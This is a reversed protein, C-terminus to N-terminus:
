FPEILFISAATPIQHAPLPAFQAALANSCSPEGFCSGAILPGTVQKYFESRGALDVEGVGDGIAKTTQQLYYKLRNKWIALTNNISPIADADVLSVPGAIGHIFGQAVGGMGHSGVAIEWREEVDKTETALGELLALAEYPAVNLPDPFMQLLAAAFAAGTTATPDPPPAVLDEPPM